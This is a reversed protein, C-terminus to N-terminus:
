FARAGPEILLIVETEQFQLNMERTELYTMFVREVPVTHRILVATRGGVCFSEAVERSPTTSVFSLNRPPQLEGETAMGRWLTLEPHGARTFLERVFAMRASIHEARQDRTWPADFLHPDRVIRGEFPALGREALVIRHGKIMEGSNPNSVYRAAVAADMADLDLTALWARLDTYLPEHGTRRTLDLDAPPFTAHADMWRACDARLEAIRAETAARAAEDAPVDLPVDFRKIAAEFRATQEPSVTAASPEMQFREVLAGFPCEWHAGKDEFALLELVWTAREEHVAVVRIPTRRLDLMRGENGEVLHELGAPQFESDPRGNPDRMHITM